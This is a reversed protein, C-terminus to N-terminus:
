VWINGLMAERNNTWSCIEPQNKPSNLLVKTQTTPNQGSEPKVPEACCLADLRFSLIEGDFEILVFGPVGGSKNNQMSMM